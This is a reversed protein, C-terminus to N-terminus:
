GHKERLSLSLSLNRDPGNGMFNSPGDDYGKKKIPSKRKQEEEGTCV